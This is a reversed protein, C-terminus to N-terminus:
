GACPTSTEETVREPAGFFLGDYVEMYRSVMSEMAFDTEARARAARGHSRRVEPHDVYSALADALADPSGSRM